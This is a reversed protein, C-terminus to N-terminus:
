ANAIILNILKIIPGQDDRGEAQALLAEAQLEHGAEALEAATADISHKLREDEESKEGALMDEIYERIKSPNALCCDLESNLRFRLTDMADLDMPDNIILKLRGNSSSLPLINYRRIFEEPVLKLVEPTITVKDLNVYEMGFQKALVKTLTEEDLLGQELLVQGLQKSTAKSTKIASLLPEKKVLKAWLM